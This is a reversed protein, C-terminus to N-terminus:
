VLWFYTQFTESVVLGFSFFIKFVVYKVFFQFFMQM